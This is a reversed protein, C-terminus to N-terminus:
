LPVEQGTLRIRDGDRQASVRFLLPASALMEMEIGVLSKAEVIQSHLEKPLVKLYKERDARIVLLIREPSWTTLLKKYDVRNLTCSDCEPLIAVIQVTELKPAVKRAVTANIEYASDVAGPELLPYDKAPVNAAVALAALLGVLISSILNLAVSQRM